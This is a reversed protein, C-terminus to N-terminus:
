NFYLMQDRMFIKSQEKPENLIGDQPRLETSKTQEQDKQTWKTSYFYLDRSITSELTPKADNLMVYHHPKLKSM